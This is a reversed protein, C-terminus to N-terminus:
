QTYYFVLVGFIQMSVKTARKLFLKQLSIHQPEASNKLLKIKRSSEHFGLIM